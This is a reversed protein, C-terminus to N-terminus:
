PPALSLPNKIANLRSMHVPWLVHEHRAAQSGHTVHAQDLAPLKSRLLLLWEWQFSKMEKSQPSQQPLAV